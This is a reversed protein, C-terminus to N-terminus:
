KIIDKYAPIIGFGDALKIGRIISKSIAEKGLLGIINIDAKINGVSLVFIIDGDFTTHPPSISDAFGLGAIQAVKIADNKTLSANTILISITTNGHSFRKRTVGKRMEGESSVLEFSDKSKRLGAIIKGNERIDGFANVVTISYVELKKLSTSYIGIGGKMGREIGYLKGITAGTGAGISGEEIFNEKANTCAMYGMERDPRIRPNGIALDFIIAAPVIPIKTIGVDYGKGREELYKMVGSASDLGFSSGGSIIIANIKDVLHFPSLSDIGRTGSAQGEISIGGIAGEEFLVVTCGTLAEYDTAHGIRIGEILENNTFQYM